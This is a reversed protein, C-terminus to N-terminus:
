RLATSSWVTPLFMIKHLVPFHMSSYHDRVFSLYNATIVFLRRYGTLSTIHQLSYLIPIWFFKDEKISEWASELRDEPKSCHIVPDKIRGKKKTSVGDQLWNNLSMQIALPTVNLICEVFQTGQIRWVLFSRNLLWIIFLHWLLNLIKLHM